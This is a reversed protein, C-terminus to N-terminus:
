GNGLMVAAISPTYSIDGDSEACRATFTHAGAALSGTVLSSSLAGEEGNNFSTVNVGIAVSSDVKIACSGAVKTTVDSGSGPGLTDDLATVSYNGSLSVFVRAARPLTLNVSTCDTGTHNNDGCTALNSRGITELSGAPVGSVTDADLGSGAGDVQLLKALVQAPNDPSGSPGTAGAPGVSGVAGAPGTAGRALSLTAENVDKGTLSDNKVQKSGVTNRGLKGAAYAGAGALILFLCLTSVVNAYTLRQRIVSM